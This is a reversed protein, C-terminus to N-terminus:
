KLWTKMQEKGTINEHVTFGDERNGKRVYLALVKVSVASKSKVILTNPNGPKSTRTFHLNSLDVSVKLVFSAKRKSDVGHMFSNNFNTEEFYLDDNSDPIMTENEIIHLIKDGNAGHFLERIM